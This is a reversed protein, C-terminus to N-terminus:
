RITLASIARSWARRWRTRRRKRELKVQKKNGSQLLASTAEGERLLKALESVSKDQWSLEGHKGPISTALAKPFDDSWKNKPRAGRRYIEATYSQEGFVLLTPAAYKGYGYTWEQLVLLLPPRAMQKLRRAMALALIGGQCDGGLIFATNSLLALMEWLYRNCVTELVPSTYDKVAIIGVCSRMAYLPQDPGLHKALQSAERYEQCVWFIPMRHGLTNFGVVLSEAFLREGKWGGSFSQLRHLLQSSWNTTRAISLSPSFKGSQKILADMNAITPQQFFSKVCLLCSFKEEVAIILQASAFSDGGLEFFNDDLSPPETLRLLTKWLDTLWTQTVTLETAVKGARSPLYGKLAGSQYLSALTDRHIKGTGTVPFEVKNVPVLHQVTAGQRGVESIIRRGVDDLRFAENPVFFVALEDTTSHESRVSAAVVFSCYIEPMQRLPAEIGELSLKRSNIAITSKQRGTITLSRCSVLGLDGTKFWGDDAFSERDCKGENLYGSFLKERSWVEINGVRGTPLLKGADDVIQLSYGPACGGVSAKRHKGQVDASIEEVTMQPARCVTGTETMGYVYSIRLNIAGMQQLKECLQLVIPTVIMEAGVAVHELSSLNLHPNRIAAELLRAAVSSSIGISKVRFDEIARLHDEPRAAAREPQLFINAPANPTLFGLGGVNEFPESILRPGPSLKRERAVLRNLLCRHGITAIKPTGTTGSTPILLMGEDSSPEVDSPSTRHSACLDNEADVSLVFEFPLCLKAMRKGIASTTVLVPRNLKERILELKSAIVGESSLKFMHWPMWSYGGYVSAWAAPIFDLASEFCLVLHSQRPVSQKVKNSIELAKDHLDATTRATRQGSADIEWFESKQEVRSHLFGALRTPMDFPHQSPPSSLLAISM